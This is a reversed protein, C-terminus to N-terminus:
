EGALWAEAEAEEDLGFAKIELGPILAGEIESVKKIWEKETLVAARDFHSVMRFLEPIRSLEVGIAGLTPLDFNTIRYLMKGHEIGNSQMMLEDLASRMEEADLKGSLELDLRNPGNAEIRLM